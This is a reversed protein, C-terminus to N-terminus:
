DAVKALARTIAVRAAGASPRRLLVALRQDCAGPARLLIARRMEPRLRALRASIRGRRELLLLRDLPSPQGGAVEDALAHIVPRRATRRHHDLVLNWAARRFYAAVEEGTRFQLTGLRSLVRLCAEQAIDEVDLGGPVRGVLYRRVGPLASMLALRADADDLLPPQAGAPPCSALPSQALPM